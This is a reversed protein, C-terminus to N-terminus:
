GGRQLLIIIIIIIIIIVILTIPDLVGKKQKFPLFHQVGEMWGKIREIQQNMKIMDNRNQQIGKKNQEIIAFSV